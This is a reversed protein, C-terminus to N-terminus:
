FTSFLFFFFFFIVKLNIIWKYNQQERNSQVRLASLSFIIIIPEFKKKLIQKVREESSQDIPSPIIYPFIVNSLRKLFYSCMWFNLSFYSIKPICSLTIFKSSLFHFQIANDHVFNLANDHLKSKKFNSIWLVIMSKLFWSPIRYKESTQNNLNSIWSVSM